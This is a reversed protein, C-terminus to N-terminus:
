YFGSEFCLTKKKDSKAVAGFTVLLAAAASLLSFILECAEFSFL